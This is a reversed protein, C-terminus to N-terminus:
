SATRSQYKFFQFSKGKIEICDIHSVPFNVGYELHIFQLVSELHKLAKALHKDYTLFAGADHNSTDDSCLYRSRRSLGQLKKYSLFHSESIKTPSLTKFPNLADNVQEHSRYHQDIKKAIHANVLHVAVYFCTTVQWDWSNNIFTNTNSLFNLNKKAQNIHEQFNAM